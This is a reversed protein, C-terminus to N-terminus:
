SNKWLSFILKEKLFQQNWYVVVVVVFPFVFGTGKDM